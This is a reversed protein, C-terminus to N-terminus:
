LGDGKEESGEASAEISAEQLGAADDEEQEDDGPMAYAQHREESTMLSVPINKRLPIEGNVAWEVLWTTWNKDYPTGNANKRSIWEKYFPRLYRILGM